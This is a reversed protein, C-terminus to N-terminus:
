HGGASSTDERDRKKVSAVLPDRISSGGARSAGDSKLPGSTMMDPSGDDDASVDQATAGDGGSVSGTGMPPTASGFRDDRLAKLVRAEAEGLKLRMEHMTQRLEEIEKEKRRLKREFETEKEREKRIRREREECSAVM